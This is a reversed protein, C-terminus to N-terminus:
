DPALLLQEGKDRVASAIVGSMMGLLPPLLMTVVVARDEIDLSASLRQGMAVLDLTMRDASPWATELQAVGGPIHRALDGLRAKIRRRAEERGLSHTISVTTPTTM